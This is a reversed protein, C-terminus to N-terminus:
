RSLGRLAADAEDWQADSFVKVGNERLLRATVGEGDRLTGTFCGDYVQHTGCSPSKETLVAVTVGHARAEELARQAGRAFAETVDRGDKTVVRGDDRLEASPRPVTLGGAVEPCLPVVRGEDLWRRLVASASTKARGDYRVAEGVLCASVLVKRPKEQGAGVASVYYM